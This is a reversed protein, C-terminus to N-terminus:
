DSVDGEPLRTPPCGDEYKELEELIIDYDSKKNKKKEMKNKSLIYIM